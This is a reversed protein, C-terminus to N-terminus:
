FLLYRNKISTCRSSNKRSRSVIECLIELNADRSALKAYNDIRSKSIDFNKKIELHEIRSGKFRSAYFNRSIKKRSIIKKKDRSEYLIENVIPCIKFLLFFDYQM